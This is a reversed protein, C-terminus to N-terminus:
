VTIGPVLLLMAVLAHVQHGRTIFLTMVFLIPTESYIALEATEVRPQQMLMLVLRAILSLLVQCLAMIQRYLVVEHLLFPLLQHLGM